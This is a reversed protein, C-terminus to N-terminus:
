SHDYFKSNFTTNSDNYDEAFFLFAITHARNIDELDMNFSNNNNNM